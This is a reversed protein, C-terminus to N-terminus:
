NHNHDVSVDSIDNKHDGDDHYSDLYSHFLYLYLFVYLNNIQKNFLHPCPSEFVWGKSRSDFASGNRWARRVIPFLFPIRLYSLSRIIHPLTQYNTYQARQEFLHRLLPVEFKPYFLPTNM